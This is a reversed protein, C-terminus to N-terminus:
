CSWTLVYWCEEQYYSNFLAGAPLEYKTLPAENGESMSTGGRTTPCLIYPEKESKMPAETNLAM